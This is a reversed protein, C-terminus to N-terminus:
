PPASATPGGRWWTPDFEQAPDVEKKWKAFMQIYCRDHSSSPGATASPVGLRPLRGGVPGTPGMAAHMKDSEFVIGEPAFEANLAAIIIGRM